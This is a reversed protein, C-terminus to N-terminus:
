CIDIVYKWMNSKNVNINGNGYCVTLVTMLACFKGLEVLVHCTFVIKNHRMLLYLVRM